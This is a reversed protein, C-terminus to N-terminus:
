HRGLRQLLFTSDAGTELAFSLLTTWCHSSHLGRNGLKADSVARRNLAIFSVKFISFSFVLSHALSASFFFHWFNLFIEDYFDNLFDVQNIQKEFIRSFFSFHTFFFVKEL